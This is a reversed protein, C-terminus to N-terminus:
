SSPKRFGSDLLFIASFLDLQERMSFSGTKNGWNSHNSQGKNILFHDVNLFLYAVIIQQKDWGYTFTQIIM